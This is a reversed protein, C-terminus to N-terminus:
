TWSGLMRHKTAFYTKDRTGRAILPPYGFLSSHHRPPPPPDRYGGFKIVDNIFLGKRTPNFFTQFISYKTLLNGPSSKLINKPQIRCCRTVSQSGQRGVSMYVGWWILGRRMSFVCAFGFCVCFYLFVTVWLSVEDYWMLRTGMEYLFYVFVCLYVFVSAWMQLNEDWIMYKREFICVFMSACVCDCEFLCACVWFCVRLRLSVFVFLCLCMSVNVCECVTILIEWLIHYWCSFNRKAMSINYPM